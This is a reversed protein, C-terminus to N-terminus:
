RLPRSTTRQMAAAPRWIIASIPLIATNSSQTSRNLAPLLVDVVVRLQEAVVLELRLEALEPRGLDLEAVVRPLPAPLARDLDGVLADLVRQQV